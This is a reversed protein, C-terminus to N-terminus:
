SPARGPPIKKAPFAGGGRRMNQRFAASFLLVALSDSVIFGTNQAPTFISLKRRIFVPAIRSKTSISVLNQKTVFLFRPQHNKSEILLIRTAMPWRRAFENSLGGPWMKLRRAPM